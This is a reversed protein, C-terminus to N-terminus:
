LTKIIHSPDALFGPEPVNTQLKGNNEVHRLHSRMSSDDDSVLLKTHLRDDTNECMKTVMELAGGAEMADSAGKWNIVCDHKASAVGFINATCYVTCKKYKVCLGIISNTSCGIAYM